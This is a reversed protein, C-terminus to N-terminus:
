SLAQNYAKIAEELEGKKQFANGMNNYAEVLDPKLSIAKSIAEIAEEVSGQEKLAIGLNNYADAYDPKLSLAKNYVEVAKILKGQKTLANGMNNYAEAYEPKLSTARKYSDIAADLQGLGKNAAGQINYLSYSNSFQQLLRTAEDLAQQLRGQNYLNILPQLQDQPPDQSNSTISEAPEVGELQQELKDFGDGKAGKGKVQIFITKAEALRDLKMLADIYSLWFQATNPNAELATKFFPLAEQVKGVGVALVGMNHNADPHKSQAKLIATYLRDAEQAQGAKHAAIGKQLAQDLTLEM